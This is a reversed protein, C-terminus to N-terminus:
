SLVQEQLLNRWKPLDSNLFFYDEPIKVRPLSRLAIVFDDESYVFHVGPTDALPNLNMMNQVAHILLPIDCWAAELVASTSNAGYVMDVQPLLMELSESVVTLGVKLQLSVLLKETDCFPHGKLLITKFDDLVGQKAVKDLLKLLVVAEDEFFGTLVLLVKRADEYSPFQRKKGHFKELFQYRLAEVQRMRAVPFNMKRLLEQSGAGNVALIEPLPVPADKILYSREDDFSRLDYPCLTSHQVGILRGHNNKVWAALFAKEWPQNEWLYLGCNQHPLTKCLKEFVVQMLCGELASDGWFSRKWEGSLMPWFNIASGPLFFKEKFNGLVLATLSLRVYLCLSCFLDKVSIFEELFYYNQRGGSTELKDRVIISRKFSCKNNFTYIWIWNIRLWPGKELIDHLGCWYKSRFRGKQAESFDINPFYTIITIQPEVDVDFKPTVSRLYRYQTWLYRFVVGFAQLPYPLLRFLRKPSCSSQSSQGCEWRYSYGAKDCWRSLVRHLRRDPSCLVLASCGREQFLKELARLKFVTYIGPSKVPFKEAILSLWWASLDGFIRFHDRLSKGCVKHSGLDHVWALYESRLKETQESVLIPISYGSDDPVHMVAWNVLIGSFEGCAMGKDLLIMTNSSISTDPVSKM